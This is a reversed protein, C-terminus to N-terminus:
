RGAFYLILFVLLVAITSLIKVRNQRLVYRFLTKKKGQFQKPPLPTPIEPLKETKTNEMQTELIEPLAQPYAHIEMVPVAESAYRLKVEAGEAEPFRRSNLWPLFANRVKAELMHTYYVDRENLLEMREARIMAAHPPLGCLRMIDGSSDMHMEHLLCAPSLLRVAFLDATYDELEQPDDLVDGINERGAFCRVGPTLIETDHLLFLHGLEHAIAFRRHSEDLAKERLFIHWNRRIRLSVCPGRAAKNVLAYLRQQERGPFPHIEVGMKKALADVDVPLKKEPLELLARWAADRADQYQRYTSM